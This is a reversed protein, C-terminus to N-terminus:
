YNWLIKYRKVVQFGEDDEEISYLKGKKWYVPKNKMAIKVIYRGEADFVDYFNNNEKDNEYTEVFIRGQDDSRINRFVPYNEPFKYTIGRSRSLDDIGKLYNKKYEETVRVPEFEKRIKRVLNGRPDVITLQYDNNIGWVISDDPLVTYHLLTSFPNLKKQGLSSEAELKGISFILEFDSNLKMLETTISKGTSMNMTKVIFNGNSDPVPFPDPSNNIQRLFKGSLSFFSLRRTISSVLIENKSIIHLGSPSAYEGPGQGQRGINRLYKGNKDFVRVRQAKGDLVYINGNDDARITTIVEFAYDDVKENDGITLDEYASFIEEGHMPDEPNRVVTVGDIVEISGKWEVKQQTCTVGFCISMVFLIFFLYKIM